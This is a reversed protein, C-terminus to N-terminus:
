HKSQCNTMEHQCDFLSCIRSYPLTFKAQPRSDMNRSTVPRVAASTRNPSPFCRIFRGDIYIYIYIGVAAGKESVLDLSVSFHFVM